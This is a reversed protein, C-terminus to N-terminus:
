ASVRVEIQEVRRGKGRLATPDIEALEELAITLARRAAVLTREQANVGPVEPVYGVFWRGQREFVATFRANTM